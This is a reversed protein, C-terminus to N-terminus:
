AVVAAEEKKLNVFFKEEQVVEVGISPMMGIIEPQNRSALISEKDVEEKRRIYAPLHVKVLELVSAWTFGKRTKLAPTGLRFGVEGHATDMSRRDAFQTDKNEKCYTELVEMSKDKTEKLTALEDAVKERLKTFQEDLKANIAAERADATAYGAMAEDFQDRSVAAIVTKSIRKAM